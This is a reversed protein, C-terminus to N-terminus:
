KLKTKPFVTLGLDYLLFDSFAFMAGSLTRQAM